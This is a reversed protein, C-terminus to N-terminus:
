SLHLVNKIKKKRAISRQAKQIDKQFKCTGHCNGCGGSCDDTGHVRLYRIDLVLLVAIVIVILYSVFNM